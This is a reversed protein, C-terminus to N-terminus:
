GKCVCPGDAYIGGNAFAAMKVARACAFDDARLALDFNFLAHDGCLAMDVSRRLVCFSFPKRVPLDNGNLYGRCVLPAENEAIHNNTNRIRGCPSHMNIRILCVGGAHRGIRDHLNDFLSM